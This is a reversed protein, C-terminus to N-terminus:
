LNEMLFTKGNVDFNYASIELADFGTATLDLAEFESVTIANNRLIDYVDMIVKSVNEVEGNTPNYAMVDGLEIRDIRASLQDDLNQISNNFITQYDNLLRVVNNYLDQMQTEVMNNIEVKFEPFYDNLMKINKNIEIIEENIASILDDYGNIISSIENINLIVNNLYKRLLMLQDLYSLSEDYSSPLNGITPLIPNIKSIHSIM